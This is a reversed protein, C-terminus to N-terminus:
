ARDATPTAASGKPTATSTSPMKSILHDQWSTEQGARNRVPGIVVPCKAARFVTQGRHPGCNIRVIRDFNVQLQRGIAHGHHKMILDKVPQSVASAWQRMVGSCGKAFDENAIPGFANWGQGLNKIDDCTPNISIL